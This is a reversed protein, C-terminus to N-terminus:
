SCDRFQKPQAFLAERSSLVQSKEEKERRQGFHSGCTICFKLNLTRVILKKLCEKEKLTKLLCQRGMNRMQVNGQDFSRNSSRRHLEM